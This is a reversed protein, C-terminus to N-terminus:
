RSLRPTSRWPRRAPWIRTTGRFVWGPMVTFPFGATFSGYMTPYVSEDTIPFAATFPTPVNNPGAYVSARSAPISTGSQDVVDVGLERTIWEFTVSETSADIEVTEERALYSYNGSIGVRGPMVTFSRQGVAIEVTAGTSVTPGGVVAIRSKPIDVGNQDVVRLTVPVGRASVCVLVQLCVLGAVRSWSM